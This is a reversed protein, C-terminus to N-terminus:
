ITWNPFSSQGIQSSSHVAGTETSVKAKEGQAKRQEAAVEGLSKEMNHKAEDNASTESRSV